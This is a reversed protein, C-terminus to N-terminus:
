SIFKIVPIYTYSFFIYVPDASDMTEPMWQSTRFYIGWLPYLPHTSDYQYILYEGHNSCSAVVNADKNKLSISQDLESALTCLSM